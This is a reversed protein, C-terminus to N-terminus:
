LGRWRAREVPAVPDAYSRHYRCVRWGLVSAVRDALALLGGLAVLALTAATM